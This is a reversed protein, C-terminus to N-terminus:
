MSIIAYRFFTEFELENDTIIPFDKIIAYRFFTEFELRLDM